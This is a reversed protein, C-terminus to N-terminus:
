GTVRPPPPPPIVDGSTAEQMAAQAEAAEREAVKEVAELTFHTQRTSGHQTEPDKAWVGPLAMSTPPVIGRGMGSPDRLRENRVKSPTSYISADMAAPGYLNSAPAAGPLPTIGRPNSGFDSWTHCVAIAGKMFNSNGAHMPQESVAAPPAIGRRAVGKLYAGKAPTASHAKVTESSVLPPASTYAQSRPHLVQGIERAHQILFSDNGMAHNGVQELQSSAQPVIGRHQGATWAREPSPPHLPDNGGSIAAAFLNSQGLVTDPPVIDRQRTARASERTEKLGTAEPVTLRGATMTPAPLNAIAGPPTISRQAGGRLTNIGGVRKSGSRHLMPNLQAQPSQSSSTASAAGPVIIPRPM